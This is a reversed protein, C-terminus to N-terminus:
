ISGSTNTGNRMTNGSGLRPSPPEPEVDSPGPESVPQLEPQAPLPAGAMNPDDEKRIHLLVSALQLRLGKATRLSVSRYGGRLAAVPLVETGLLEDRLVSKHYVSLRLFAGNPHPLAWRASEDWCPNLGNGEVRRTTLPTPAEAVGGGWLELVCWVNSAGALSPTRQQSPLLGQPDYKDCPEPAIREEGPKPLHQACVIRTELLIPTGDAVVRTYSEAVDGNGAMADEEAIIRQLGLVKLAKAPAGRDTAPAILPQQLVYGCGGNLRFLARNLQMGADYTQYNFTILHCGAQLLSLVSPAPINSSGFRTGMPYIRTLLRSNYSQLAALEKEATSVAKTESISVIEFPLIRRLEPRKQWWGKVLPTAIPQPPAVEPAGAAMAKEKRSLGMRNMVSMRRETPDAVTSRRGGATAQAGDDVVFGVLKVTSLYVVDSLAATVPAKLVSEPAITERRGTAGMGDAVESVRAKGRAPAQLPGPPLMGVHSAHMPMQPRTEPRPPALSASPPRSGEGAVAGAFTVTPKMPADAAQALGPAHPKEYGAEDEGDSAVSSARDRVLLVQGRLAVEERVAEAEEPEMEEETDDGDDWDNFAIYRSGRDESSRFLSGLPLEVLKPDTPEQEPPSAPPTPAFSARTSGGADADSTRRDHHWGLMNLVDRAWLTKCKLLVKHRLAEPSPLLPAQVDAEHGIPATLLRDGFAEVCYAAIVAQQKKSCHMELSIVIPYPSADFAVRAIAFVVDRFKIRSTVTMKHYVLPENDPGDFCDVEVCRCGMALVRTYMDVSSESQLQDGTAYTNHSTEIFYSTLPQTMDMCVKTHVPDVAANETSFLFEQLEDIPLRKAGKAASEWLREITQDNEEGQDVRCFDVFEDYGWEDVEGARHSEAGLVGNLVEPLGLSLSSFIGGGRSPSAARTAGVRSVVSVTSPSLPRASKRGFSVNRALPTRNSAGKLNSVPPARAAATTLLSRDSQSNGKLLPRPPAVLSRDSAFKAHTLQPRGDPSRRPVGPQPAATPSSPSALTGAAEIDAPSSFSDREDSESLEFDTEPRGSRPSSSFDTMQTERAPRVEMGGGLRLHSPRTQNMSFSVTKAPGIERAFAKFRNAVKAMSFIDPQRVFEDTERRDRSVSRSRLDGQEARVLFVREIVDRFFLQVPPAAVAQRYLRMVHAFEMHVEAPTAVSNQRTRGRTATREADYFVLDATRSAWERTVARNFRLTLDIVAAELEVKSMPRRRARSNKELHAKFCHLLWERYQVRSQMYSQRRTERLLAELGTSWAAHTAADDEDFLLTLVRNYEAGYYISIGFLTGYEGGPAHHRWDYVEDLLLYGKWSWRLMSGNQTLLVFLRSSFPHVLHARGRDVLLALLSSGRCMVDCATRQEYTLNALLGQNLASPGSWQNLGKGFAQVVPPLRLLLLLRLAVAGVANIYMPAWWIAPSTEPPRYFPSSPDNTDRWYTYLTYLAICACVPQTFALPTLVLTLTRKEHQVAWHTVWDWVLGMILATILLIKSLPKAEPWVYPNSMYTAVTLLTLLAFVADLWLLAHLIMRARYMRKLTQGRATAGFKRYARWGFSRVVVMASLMLLAALVVEVYLPWCREVPSCARYINRYESTASGPAAGTSRQDVIRPPADVDAFPLFTSGVAVHLLGISLSNILEFPSEEVIARLSARVAAVVGIIISLGFYITHTREVHCLAITLNAGLGDGGSSLDYLPLPPAPPSGPGSDECLPATHLLVSCAYYLCWTAELFVIFLFAKASLTLVPLKKCSILRLVCACLKDLQRTTYYRRRRSRKAGTLLRMGQATDGLLPGNEAETKLTTILSGLAVPPMSTSSHPVLAGDSRPQLSREITIGAASIRAHVPMLAGSNVSHAEPPFVSRRNHEGAGAGAARLQMINDLDEETAVGEHTATYTITVSCPHTSM